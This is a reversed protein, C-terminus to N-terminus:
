TMKNRKPKSIPPSFFDSTNQNILGSMKSQIPVVMLESEDSEEDKSKLSTTHLVLKDLGANSFYHPIDPSLILNQRKLQRDFISSDM